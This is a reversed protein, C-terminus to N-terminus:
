LDDGTLVVVLEIFPDIGGGKEASKESVYKKPFIADDHPEANDIAHAMAAKCDHSNGTGGSPPEEGAEGQDAKSGSTDLGADRGVDAVLESRVVM